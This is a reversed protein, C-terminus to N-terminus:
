VHKPNNSGLLGADYYFWYWFRVSETSCEVRTWCSIGPWDSLPLNLYLYLDSQPGSYSGSGPGLSPQTWINRATNHWCTQTSGFPSQTRILRGWLLVSKSATHVANTCLLVQVDRLTLCVTLASRRTQARSSTLQLLMMSSDTNREPDTWTWCMKSRTYNDAPRDLVRELRNKKNLTHVNILECTQELHSHEM